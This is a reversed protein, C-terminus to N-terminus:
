CSEEPYIDEVEKGDLEVVFAENPGTLFSPAVASNIYLTDKFKQFGYSEHIHGFAHIIPNVQVVKQALMPCGVATRYQFVKDLIYEPPGHSLLIDTDMPIYRCKEKMLESDGMFPWGGFTPTWPLGYFKLGEVTREADILPLVGQEWLIHKARQINQAVATDHNGPVYIKHKFNQKGMWKAFKRIQSNSTLEADGTHCLIDGEGLEFEKHRGHTDSIFVLKLKAM